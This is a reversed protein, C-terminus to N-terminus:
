DRFGPERVRSAAPNPRARKTKEGDSVAKLIFVQLLTDFLRVKVGKLFSCKHSVPPSPTVGSGARIEFEGGQLAPPTQAAGRGKFEEIWV